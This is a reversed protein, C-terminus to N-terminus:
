FKLQFEGPLRHVIMLEDKSHQLAATEKRKTSQENNASCEEESQDDNENEEFESNGSSNNTDGSGSGTDFALQYDNISLSSDLSNSPKKDKIESEVNEEMNSDNVTTHCTVERNSVLDNSKEYDIEHSDDYDKSQPEHILQFSNTKQNYITKINTIKKSLQQNLYDNLPLSLKLRGNINTTNNLYPADKAQIHYIDNLKPFKQHRLMEDKQTSISDQLMFFNNMCKSKTTSNTLDASPANSLNPCLRNLVDIIMISKYKDNNTLLNAVAPKQVIIKHNNNTNDTDQTSFYFQSDNKLCSNEITQPM